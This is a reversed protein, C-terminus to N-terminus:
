KKLLGSNGGKFPPTNAQVSLKVPKSPGTNTPPHRTEQKPPAKVAQGRGHKLRTGNKGKANGDKETCSSIGGGPPPLDTVGMGGGPPPPSQQNGTWSRKFVIQRDRM